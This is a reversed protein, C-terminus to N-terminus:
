AGGSGTVSADSTSSTTSTTSTTVDVASTSSSTTSTTSTSPNVSGTGVESSATGFPAGDPAAANCGVFYLAAVSGILRSMASSAVSRAGRVSSTQRASARTPGM